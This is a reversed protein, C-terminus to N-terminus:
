MDNSHSFTFTACAEGGPSEGAGRWTVLTKGLLETILAQADRWRKWNESDGGAAAPLSLLGYGNASNSENTTFDLSALFNLHKALKLACFVSYFTM